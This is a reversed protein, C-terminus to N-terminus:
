PATLSFFEVLNGDPDVIKFLKFPGEEIVAESRLSEPAFAKVRTFLGHIDKVKIYPAANDGRTSDPAYARKSVVAYLGGAVDFGVMGPTRVQPQKGFLREYFAVSRDLNEAVVYLGFREIAVESPDNRPATMPPSSSVMSLAVLLHELM